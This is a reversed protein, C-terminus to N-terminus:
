IDNQIALEFTVATVRANAAQLTATGGNFDAPVHQWGTTRVGMGEEITAADTYSTRGDPPDSLAVRVAGAEEDNVPELCATVQAYLPTSPTARRVNLTTPTNAFESSDLVVPAEEQLGTTDITVM